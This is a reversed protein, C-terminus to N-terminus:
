CCSTELQQCVKNGFCFLQSSKYLPGLPLVWVEMPIFETSLSAVTLFYNMLSPYHQEYKIWYCPRLNNLSDHHVMWGCLVPFLIRLLLVEPFSIPPIIKRLVIIGSFQPTDFESYWHSHVVFTKRRNLYGMIWSLTVKSDIWCYKQVDTLHLATRAFVSLSAYLLAGMLELRPVYMKKIPAVRSRSFVKLSGDTNAVWTCAPMMGTKPPM